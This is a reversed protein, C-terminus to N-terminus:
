MVSSSNAFNGIDLMNDKMVPLLHSSMGCYCLILHDGCVDGVVVVISSGYDKMVCKM